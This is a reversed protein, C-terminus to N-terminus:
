PLREGYTNLEPLPPLEHDCKRDSLLMRCVLRLSLIIEGREEFDRRLISVTSRETDLEKCVPCPPDTTEANHEWYHGCTGRWLSMPPINALRARLRDNVAHLDRIKEELETIRANTGSEM